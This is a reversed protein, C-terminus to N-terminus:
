SRSCFSAHMRCASKRCRGCLPVVFLPCNSTFPSTCHLSATVFCLYLTPRTPTTCPVAKSVRTTNSCAKCELENKNLNAICILGCIDCVHVRYPDSVEFLRERLFQAAGHAIM